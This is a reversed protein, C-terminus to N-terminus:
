ARTRRRTYRGPGPGPRGPEPPRPRRGLEAGGAEGLWAGNRFEPQPDPGVCSSGKPESNPGSNMHIYQHDIM